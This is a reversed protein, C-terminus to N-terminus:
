RGEEMKAQGLVALRHRIVGNYPRFFPPVPSYFFQHWPCPEDLLIQDASSWPYDDFRVVTGDSLVKEDRNSCYFLVEDSTSSRIIDFYAAVTDPMMEQMSAINIALAIPAQKLSAANDAPVGILRINEDKLAATMGDSDVALGLSGQRLTKGAYVLDVLLTKTLNIAIVRVSKAVALILSAMNGFGDGIVLIVNGDRFCDPAADLIQSLSLVQRLVDLEYLRGQKEVIAAAIQDIKKFRSFPRGMHRFRAQLARHALRRLGWAPPSHHGFGRLGSFQGDKYRFTEHEELWHASAGANVDDLRSALWEIAAEDVLLGTGDMM